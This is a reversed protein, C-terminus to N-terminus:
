HKKHTKTVFNSLKLSHTQELKYYNGLNTIGAGIQLQNQGLKYYSEQKTIITARIQLLKGLKYYHLQGLKYCRKGQYTIFCLQGLKYYM